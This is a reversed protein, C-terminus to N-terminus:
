ISLLTGMIVEECAFVSKCTHLCAENCITQSDSLVAVALVERVTSQSKLFVGIHHSEEVVIWLGIGDQQGTMDRPVLSIIHLVVVM